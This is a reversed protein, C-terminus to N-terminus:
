SVMTYVVNEFSQTKIFMKSFNTTLSRILLLGANTWNTAQCRDPTIVMSIQSALKGEYAGSLIALTTM